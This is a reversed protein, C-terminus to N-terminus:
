KMLKRNIKVNKKKANKEVDSMLIQDQDEIGGIRNEQDRDDTEAERDDHSKIEQDHDDEEIEHDVEAGSINTMYYSDYKIVSFWSLLFFSNYSYDTVLRSRRRRQKRSSKSEREREREVFNGFKKM